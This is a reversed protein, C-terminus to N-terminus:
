QDRESAVVHDKSIFSGSKVKAKPRRAVRTAAVKFEEAEIMACINDFGALTLRELKLPPSTLWSWANFL